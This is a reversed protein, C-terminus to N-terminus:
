TNPIESSNMQGTGNCTDCAEDRVKHDPDHGCVPCGLRNMEGGVMEIFGHDPNNCTEIGDGDCDPCTILDPKNSM